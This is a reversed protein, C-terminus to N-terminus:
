TATSVAARLPSKVEDALSALEEYGAEGSYADLYRALARRFATERGARGLLEALGDDANVGERVASVASSSSDQNARLYLLGNVRAAWEFARGAAGMIAEVPPMSERSAENLESLPRTVAPGGRPAGVVFRGVMGFSYHPQCFYDYIGEVEARYTFETGGSMGLMGSHFSEAAQPIRRPVDGGLLQANDPHFASATHFDGMNLWVVDEGAEVRLGVPDFRFDGGLTRLGIVRPPLAEASGHAGSHAGGSRLSPIRGGLPILGAGVTSAFSLRLFERRDVDRDM